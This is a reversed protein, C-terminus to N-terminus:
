QSIDQKPVFAYVKLHSFMLFHMLIPYKYQSSDNPHSITVKISVFKHKVARNILQLLVLVKVM